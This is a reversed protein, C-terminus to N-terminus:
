SCRLRCLRLASSMRRTRITRNRTRHYQLLRQKQSSVAGPKASQVTNYRTHNDDSNSRGRSQPTRMARDKNCCHGTQAILRMGRTHHEAPDYVIMALDSEEHLMFHTRAVEHPPHYTLHMQFYTPCSGLRRPPRSRRATPRSTSRSICETPLSSLTSRHARRLAQM